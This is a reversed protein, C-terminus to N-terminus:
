YLLQRPFVTTALDSEHQYAAPASVSKQRVSIAIAVGKIDTGSIIPNFNLATIRVESTTITEANGGIVREVLNNASDFRLLTTVGNLDVYNIETATVSNFKQAHRVESALRNLTLQANLEVEKVVRSRAANKIVDTAFSALVVMAVTLITVYILVEVITFGNQNNIKM